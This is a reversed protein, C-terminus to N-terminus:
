ALWLVNLVDRIPHCFQLRLGNAYIMPYLSVRSAMRDSDVVVVRHGLIELVVSELINYVKRLAHLDDPLILSEWSRGAFYLYCSDSSEELAM